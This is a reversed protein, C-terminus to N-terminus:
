IHKEIEGSKLYIEMGRDLINISANIDRDIERSCNKCTFKRLRFDELETNKFKCFSCLQSSPYFREIKIIKKNYWSAKYTLQRTIESFGSSAIKRSLNRPCSEIMEKTDLDEIIIVDNERIIKKTIEHTIHKNLNKIKMNLKKIKLEMKKYNNSGKQRRALAKHLGQLRKELREQKLWLSEFKDGDSTVIINKLGIDIGIVRNLNFEPEEIEEKVALAVYYKGAEKIVTANIIKGNFEEINRYGRIKINGIKPLTLIKNQMDLKINSYEEECYTWIRCITRYSDYNHLKVKFKPLKSKGIFYRKYGYELDELTTILISPDVENLWPNNTKIKELEKELVKITINERNNKYIEEVQALCNNYIFRSTGVFKNITVQQERNPYMRFKYTKYVKM